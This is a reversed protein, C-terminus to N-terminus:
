FIRYNCVIVHGSVPRGQEDKWDDIADCISAACGIACNSAWVAQTYHYPKPYIDPDECNWTKGWDIPELQYNCKQKEQFWFHYSDYLNTPLAITPFAAINEGLSRRQQRTRHVLSCLNAGEQAIAVIAPDFVLEQM